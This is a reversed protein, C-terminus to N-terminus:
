KNFLGAAVIDFESLLDLSQKGREFLGSVKNFIRRKRTRDRGDHRVTVALVCCGSERNNSLPDTVIFDLRQDPGAPHAFNIERVVQNEISRDCDFDQGGLKRSVDILDLSELAFSARCGRKVMGVNNSNVLDPSITLSMEDGGLKDRTFCEPFFDGVLGQIDLFRYVDSQLNRISQRSRVGRVYHM